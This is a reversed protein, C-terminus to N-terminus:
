VGLLNLVINYVKKKPYNYLTSLVKSIDKSSFGEKHLLRAKEAIEPEEPEIKEQAHIIVVIEGKPPNASYYEILNETSDTKIEEYIKTLERAVTVTRSKLEHLTKLLRNPSEFAVVDIDSYKLLFEKNGKPLFGIFVFSNGARTTASLATTISCAGPLPVVEIDHKLLESGPDSILPTGADSVLAISKGENLLESIKGAKQKESFKHYSILKTNIEYRNLLKQTVRTDECAIFEVDALVRIARLTLDELNGIPTPCIYLTGNTKNM